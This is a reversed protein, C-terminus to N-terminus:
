AIGLIEAIIVAPIALIFAAFLIRMPKGNDYDKAAFYLGFPSVAFVEFAIIAIFIITLVNTM